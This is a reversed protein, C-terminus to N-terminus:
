PPVHPLFNITFYLIYLITCKKTGGTNELLLNNNINSNNNNYYDDDDDKNDGKHLTYVIVYRFCVM